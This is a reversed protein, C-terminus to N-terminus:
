EQSKTEDYNKSTPMPYHTYGQGDVMPLGGPNESDFITKRYQTNRVLGMAVAKTFDTKEREAAIQYHLEAITQNRERTDLDKERTDLERNREDFAMYVRIEEQM